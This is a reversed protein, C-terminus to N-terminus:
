IQINFSEGGFNLNETFSMGEASPMAMAAAFSLDPATGSNGPMGSGANQMQLKIMGKLYDMDAKLMAKNEADRHKRKVEELEEKSMHPDLVEMTELLEMAEELQKLEEEGLDALMENLQAMMEDSIEAGAASSAEMEERLGEMVASREDFIAEEKEGLKSELESFVASEMGSGAEEQQEMREDRKQTVAVMEELELHHKKKRAALEVRRAHTLALQLEEPDGEEAAIKRRIELVKRRASLLARGASVSTKAQRIKTTVEKYNYNVPEKVEEEGSTDSTESTELFGNIKNELTGTFIIQGQEREQEQASVSGRKMERLLRSTQAYIENKTTGSGKSFSFGGTNNGSTKGTDTCGARRTAIDNGYSRNGTLGGFYDSDSGSYGSRGYSSYVTSRPQMFISIGM